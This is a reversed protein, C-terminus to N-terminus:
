SQGEKQAQPVETFDFQMESDNLQGARGKRARGMLAKGKKLAGAAQLFQDRQQGDSLVLRYTRIDECSTPSGAREPRVGGESSAQGGPSACGYRITVIFVNDPLTAVSLLRWQEAALRGDAHAPIGDSRQFIPALALLGVALVTVAGAPRGSIFLLAVTGFVFCTAIYVLFMM